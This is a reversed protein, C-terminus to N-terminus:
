EADIAVDSFFPLLKSYTDDVLEPLVKTNAVSTMFNTDGSWRPVVHQHCHDAIGAGASRSQNIGINFGNPSMCAEIAVLAEKTVQMLDALETSDLKTIGDVHAYPVVMLHGPNYPYANMMVFCTTGRKLIGNDIDRDESAKQCFICGTVPEAALYAMRWPAWLQDM